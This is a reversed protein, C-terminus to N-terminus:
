RRGPDVRDVLEVGKKWIGGRFSESDFYDGHVCIVQEEAHRHRIASALRRTQQMAPYRHNEGFRRGAEMGTPTNIYALCNGHSDFNVAAVNARNGVTMNEGPGRDNPVRGFQNHVGDLDRV